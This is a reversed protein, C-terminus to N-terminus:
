PFRTIVAERPSLLADAPPIRWSRCIWRTSARHVRPAFTLPESELLRSAGGRPPRGDRRGGWRSGFPASDRRQGAPPVEVWPLDADKLGSGFLAREDFRIGIFAVGLAGLILTVLWNSLCGVM